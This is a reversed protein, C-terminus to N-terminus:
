NILGKKRKNCKGYGPLKKIDINCKAIVKKFKDKDRVEISPIDNIKDCMFGYLIM